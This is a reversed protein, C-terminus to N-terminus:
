KVLRRLAALLKEFLSLTEAHVAVMRKYVPGAEKCSPVAAAIAKASREDVAQLEREYALRTAILSAAEEAPTAAKVPKAGLEAQLSALTPVPKATLGARYQGVLGVPAKRSADRRRLAEARLGAARASRPAGAAAQARKGVAAARLAAAKTTPTPNAAAIMAAHASPFYQTAAAIAQARDFGQTEFHRVAAWYGDKTPPFAPLKASYGKTPPPPKAVGTPFLRDCTHPDAVALYARYVEPQERQVKAEAEARHMFGDTVLSQVQAQYDMPCERQLWVDTSEQPKQAAPPTASPKPLAWQRRQAARPMPSKTAPSM